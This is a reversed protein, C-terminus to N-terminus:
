LSSGEDLPPLARHEFLGASDASLSRREIVPDVDSRPCFYLEADLAALAMPLSLDGLKRLGCEIKGFYGPQLGSKEDAELQLLGLQRRRAAIAQRLQSYDRCRIAVSV